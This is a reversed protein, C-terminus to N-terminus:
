NKVPVEVAKTSALKKGSEIRRSSRIAFGSVGEAMFISTLYYDEGIRYFVLKPSQRRNASLNNTVLLQQRKTEFSRLQLLNENLQSISELHYVGAPYIKDGVHFDFPIEARVAKLTQASVDNAAFANLFILGTILM